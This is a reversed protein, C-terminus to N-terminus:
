NIGKTYTITPHGDRMLMSVLVSDERVKSQYFTEYQPHQTSGTQQYQQSLYKRVDAETVTYDTVVVEASRYNQEEDLQLTVTELCRGQSQYEYYLATEGIRTTAFGRQAMNNVLAKYDAHWDLYPEAYPARILMSEGPNQGVPSKEQDCATLTLLFM